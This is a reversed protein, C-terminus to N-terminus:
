GQMWALRCSMADPKVTPSSLFTVFDCQLRWFYSHYMTVADAAACPVQQLQQKTALM